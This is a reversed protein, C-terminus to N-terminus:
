MYTENTRSAAETLIAHLNRTADLVSEKDFLASVVAVGKLNAVGSEMVSVANTANIGGIAVVPLKSALCVAKLGDFGVTSNNAKTTTPYVGGCGIYDAGDIWAQQAQEPTKCSVGIIKDPGLLIRATRAPIDSQGVHVGDADCALAVDVRDNILLPVGHSRCIELCAKATNIFDRTETNKERLQVITAGGEIAERTADVMPRGWMKNMRSDPVAYLFLNNPNFTGQRGSNQVSSKLRLLHDFPGQRGNGIFIDKSYELATEIYCKAVKVASLMPSGKALEAAICSALTCGTGHTNRTKIRSSRLEHYDEGDFFIDVADLSDPLDGGKVLVNRFCSVISPGALVDGSTSVMVPDVVLARVPFERLNQHLIKVIGISPLMGTKVVDVQMDSLVSKLQEAVFDNRVIDVGQVGATNQATVATIVTSCYVGRAACAKLDAQIGAGAGSDSGAVSLVHPIKKNAAAGNGEMTMLTQNVKWNSFRSRQAVREKNFISSSNSLIGCFAM